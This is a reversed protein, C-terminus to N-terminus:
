KNNWMNDKRNVDPVYTSGLLVSKLVKKEPIVFSITNAKEWIGISRHITEKSGDGYTLTVDVPVPKHGTCEVTIKYGTQKKVKLTLDPVGGDIFWRKWFWNLNKGSGTNMCNFFDFPIPHKGQWQQIYYHLAKTFLTDGLMDKVYLYGLGPKPYSNIFYNTGNMQTSLTSISADTETGAAREYGHVGYDDKLSTDIISSIIWEGITAWGEDMWAYKTENIGMYFPFMTHFVEHDVLEITETRSELPNDNVMMPYEMQDLGDFITEHSYPFPWHPFVHSMAWVTKRNFDVVEYYDRHAPNFVADVRTRRKTAADVEVSSSRWLYHDSVAFAFDTVNNASFKWTNFANSKTINKQKLDASDIIDVVGDQQEATRLRQCYTENLVDNCNALDGTAWVVYNGPVTIAANFNGFDNYFEQPGLYPEMNWGDIDDYVAIRPFFYAIFDAGPEIEGTRIHSTKNLTYVYQISFHMTGGPALTTVPVSMNTGDIQLRNSDITTNNFQFSSIHVGNTIDAPKVQMMRMSGKKYINPYLKFVIQQLTNPSNNVYDIDVKGTLLRTDPNFNIELNYTATNQWYKSGPEGTATRTGKEYAAPLNRPLSLTVQANAGLSGILALIVLSRKISM